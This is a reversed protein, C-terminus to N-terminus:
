QPTDGQEDDHEDDHDDAHAEAIRAQFAAVVNPDQLQESVLDLVPAAELVKAGGGATTEVLFSGDDEQSMEILIYPNMGLRTRKIVHEPEQALALHQDAPETTM